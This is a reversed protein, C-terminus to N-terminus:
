GMRLHLVEHINPHQPVLQKRIYRFIYVFWQKM